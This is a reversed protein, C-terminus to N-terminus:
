DRTESGAHRQAGLYTEQLHVYHLARAEILARDSEKVERRFRAPVGMYLSRPPIVTREPVLSGAAVISGEGVRAHSLLIAGMGILCHDEIICGHVIARHGVTVWEGIITPAGGDTHLVSGDQINSNAGIRIAEVDGRLVCQFWVSANEGVEVDGIVDASEAIFASSAVRPQRGEYASIVDGGRAGRFLTPLASKTSKSTQPEEKPNVSLGCVAFV